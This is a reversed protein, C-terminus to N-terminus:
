QCAGVVDYVGVCAGTNRHKRVVHVAQRQRQRHRGGAAHSKVLLTTGGVYM